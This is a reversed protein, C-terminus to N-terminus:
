KAELKGLTVPPSSSVEISSRRWGHFDDDGSRSTSCSLSASTRSRSMRNNDIHNDDNSDNTYYSISELRSTSSLEIRTKNGNFTREHDIEIENAEGEGLISSASFSIEERSQEPSQSIPEPEPEVDVNVLQEVGWSGEHRRVENNRNGDESLSNSCNLALAELLIQAEELNLPAPLTSADSTNNPSLSLHERTPEHVPPRQSSLPAYIGIDEYALLELETLPPAPITPPPSRPESYDSSSRFENRNNATPPPRSITSRLFVDKAEQMNRM